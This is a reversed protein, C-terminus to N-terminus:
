ELYGKMYKLIAELDEITADQKMRNAKGSIVAINGKIYGKSSDIRDVSPRLDRRDKDTYEALKFKLIPCCEPIILDSPEIDFDLKKAKARRYATYHLYQEPTEVIWKKTRGRRWKIRKETQERKRYWEREKEKNKWPM